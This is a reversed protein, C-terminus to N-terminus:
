MKVKIVHKVKECTIPFHISESLIVGQTSRLYWILDPAQSLSSHRIYIRDFLSLVPSQNGVIPGTMMRNVTQATTWSVLTKRRIPTNQLAQNHRVTTNDDQSFCTHAAM